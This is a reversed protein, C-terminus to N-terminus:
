LSHVSGCMESKREERHRTDKLFSSNIRDSHFVPPRLFKSMLVTM